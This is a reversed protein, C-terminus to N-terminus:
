KIIKKEYKKRIKEIKKRTRYRGIRKISALSAIFGLSFYIATMTFKQTYPYIDKDKITPPLEEIKAGILSLLTEYPKQVGYWELFLTAVTTHQNYIEDGYKNRMLGSTAIL